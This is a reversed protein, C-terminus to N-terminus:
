VKSNQPMDTKKKTQIDLINIKSKSNAPPLASWSYLSAQNAIYEDQEDM